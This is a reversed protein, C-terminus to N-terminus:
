KRNKLKAKMLETSPFEVRSALGCLQLASIFWGSPDLQWWKLGHWASTPFAHHNNHWSGGASPLSLWGNNTSCDTVLYPRSGFMHGISNVCWTVHQAISIRTLGGWLFGSVAGWWSGALFGGILAPLLLGLALWLFYLRNLKFVVKDKILDPVYRGWDTVEHVFLWGVHAHFLGSLASWRQGSKRGLYPSHPDGAQDAFAHHRRHIAVWYLVPGQGNMSGFIVLLARIFRNTEFARHSFLRHFGVETGVAGVVYMGILLGVEVRGAGYKWFSGLAVIAGLFPIAVMAFALRHEFRRFATNAAAAGSPDLAFTPALGTQLRKSMPNDQRETLSEDRAHEAEVRKM